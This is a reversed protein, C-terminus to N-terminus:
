FGPPPSFGVARPIWIVLEPWIYMIIIVVFDMILWPIIRRFVFYPETKAMGAVAFVTGGVPPTLGAVAGMLVLYVCLWWPHLGLRYLVPFITPILIIVMPLLEGICGMLFLLFTMMVLILLKNAGVATVMGALADAVHYQMLAVKSLLAGIILLGMFGVVNAGSYFTEKFDRLRLKTDGKIVNVLFVYVMAVAAAETPTFVGTTITGVVMLPIILSLLNPPICTFREKWSTIVRPQTGARWTIILVYVSFVIALVIGPGIGAMFLAGISQETLAGWIVLGISPPILYGLVGSATVMPLTLGRSYGRKDLEPLALIFLTALTAYISGLMAGLLVATWIVAIAIGGPLWGMWNSAVRFLGSAMGRQMMFGGMVFLPFALWTFNEMAKYLNMGLCAMYSFGGWQYLAVVTVLGIAAAIPVGTFLFAFLMTFVGAVPNITFLYISGVIVVTYLPLVFYPKGFLRRGGERETALRGV